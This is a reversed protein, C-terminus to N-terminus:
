NWSRKRYIMVGAGAALVGIVPVIAMLGTSPMAVAPAQAYGDAAVAEEEAHCVTCDHDPPLSMMEGQPADTHCAYCEVLPHMEDMQALAPAALALLSVVAAVMVVMFVARKM